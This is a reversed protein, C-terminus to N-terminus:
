SRIKHAQRVARREELLSTVGVEAPHQEGTTQDAECSVLDLLHQGNERIRELGTIHKQEWHAQVADELLLQSFGIIATLPTRLEHSITAFFERGHHAKELDANLAALKDRQQRLESNARELEQSWIVREKVQVELRTERDQVLSLMYTAERALAVLDQSQQKVAQQLVQRAQKVTLLNATRVRLEEVNFPKVLYDQAGARLLQVRLREDTHGSLIVIPMDAFDPRARLAQVLQEGNMRPMSVDCLLLDPRLALAQELGEQGDYAIAVRCTKELTAAIMHAMSENDEVILIHPCDQTEPSLAPPKAEPM